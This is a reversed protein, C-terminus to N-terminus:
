NKLVCHRSIFEANYKDGMLMVVTEIARTRTAAHLLSLDLLAKLAKISYTENDKLEVPVIKLITNLFCKIIPLHHM